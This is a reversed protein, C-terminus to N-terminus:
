DESNLLAENLLSMEDNEMYVQYRQTLVEQDTIGTEQAILVKVFTEYDDEVLSHVKNTM